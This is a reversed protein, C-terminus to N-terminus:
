PHRYGATAPRPISRTIRYSPDFKQPCACAEIVRTCIGGIQVNLMQVETAATM